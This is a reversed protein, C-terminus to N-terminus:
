PESARLANQFREDGMVLPHVDWWPEGNYDLVLSHQLFFADDERNAVQKTRHIEALRPWHDPMANTVLTSAVYKSASELDAMSILDGSARECAARALHMVDRLRGGSRSTLFRLAPEVEAFVSMLDMRAELFARIAAVAEERLQMPEDERGRIPLMPMAVTDFREGVRVRHPFYQDAPDFFFLLDCRLRHWDDARRLVADAVLDRNGIKELNDFVLCLRADMGSRKTLSHRAADFFGNAHDLLEEQNRDIRQRIERRYVSDSELTGRLRATLKALFPIGIASKAEAEISGLIERAHSEGLLEEAFWKQVLEAAEVPIDLGQKELWDTVGQVALLILDGFTLTSQDLEALPDVFVAELGTPRLDALIKRVQTSKGV